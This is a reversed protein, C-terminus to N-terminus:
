DWKSWKPSDCKRSCTSSSSDCCNGPKEVTSKCCKPEVCPDVKCRRSTSCSIDKKTFKCPECPVPCCEEEKPKCKKTFVYCVDPEPCPPPKCIVYGQLVALNTTFLALAQETPSPDPEVPLQSLTVYLQIAQTAFSVVGAAYAECCGPKCNNTLGENLAEEVDSTLGEIFAVYALLQEPTPTLLFYALAQQQVVVKFDALAEFIFTCCPIPCAPTVDCCRM